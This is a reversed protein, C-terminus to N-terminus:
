YNGIKADGGQHNSTRNVTGEINNTKGQISDLILVDGWERNRVNMGSSLPGLERRPNDFGRPPVKWWMKMRLNESTNILNVSKQYNISFVLFLQLKQAGFSQYCREMIRVEQVWIWVKWQIKILLDIAFLRFNNSIDGEAANQASWAGFVNPM